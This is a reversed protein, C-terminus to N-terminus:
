LRVPDLVPLGFRERLCRDVSADFSRQWVEPALRTRYPALEAAADHEVEPLEPGCASRAALLMERDLRALTQAIEDRKAASPRRAQERLAVVRELVASLHERLEVPTELRGAARVLRDAARELQRSVSPQRREQVPLLEAERGADAVDEDAATPGGAFVGVSRRWRAFAARVDPECFELRLARQARGARHREAKQDIGFCVVSLPIGSRAWGRVLEFSTGVVRIIHGENVRALHEEVRRCYEGVDLEESRDSSAVDSV